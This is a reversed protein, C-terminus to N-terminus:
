KTKTSYDGITKMISRGNDTLEDTDTVYQMQMAFPGTWSRSLRDIENFFEAQEGAGMNCFIEAAQTPTFDHTIKKDFAITAM